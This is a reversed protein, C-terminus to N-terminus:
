GAGASGLLRAPNSQAFLPTAEPKAADSVVAKSFAANAANRPALLANMQM